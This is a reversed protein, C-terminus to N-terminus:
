EILFVPVKRVCSVGSAKAKIYVIYLGSPQKVGSSDYGNWNITQVGATLPAENQFVYVSKGDLGFFKVTVKADKSLHYTIIVEDNVGDNNPSFSSNEVTINEIKLPQYKLGTVNIAVTTRERINIGIDPFGDGDNDVPVILFNDLEVPESWVLEMGDSNDPASDPGSSDDGGTVVGVIKLVSNTSVNYDGMAYLINWGIKAEMSGKISGQFSAKSVIEATKESVSNENNIEWFTPNENRDSGTLFFDPKMGDFSFKRRWDSLLSVDSVGKNQGTDIYLIINNGNCIGDVGIYLYKRDWSLKIRSIDNESGWKSDNDSEYYMGTLDPSLLIQDGEIDFDSTVGDIIIQGSKDDASKSIVPESFLLSFISLFIISNKRFEM